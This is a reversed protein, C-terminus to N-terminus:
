IANTFNLCETEKRVFYVNKAFCILTKQRLEAQCLGQGWFSCSSAWQCQAAGAEGLCPNVCVCSLPPLFSTCLAKRKGSGVM